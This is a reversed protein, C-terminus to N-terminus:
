FVHFSNCKQFNSKFLCLIQVLSHLNYFHKHLFSLQIGSQVYAVNYLSRFQNTVSYHLSSLFHLQLLSPHTHLVFPLLLSANFYFYSTFISSHILSYELTFPSKSFSMISLTSFLILSPTPFLFPVLSSPLLSIFLFLFLYASVCSIYLLDGM